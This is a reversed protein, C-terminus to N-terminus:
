GRKNAVYTYFDADRDSGPVFDSFQQIDDFGCTALLNHLENEKFPYMELTGYIIGPKKLSEWDSVSSHNAYYVFIVKSDDVHIPCGRVATGCYMITGKYPFNKVPNDLLSEKLRLIRPFNREDVILMGGPRLMHAFGQVCKIRDEPKLVLCLSNGLVLVADYKPGQYETLTRWDYTTFHLGTHRDQSGAYKLANQRLHEDIENPMVFLGHQQLFVSEVGIGAAADFVNRYQSGSTASIGLINRLFPGEQALRAVPEVFRHWNNALEPEFIDPPYRIPLAEKKLADFFGLSSDYLDYGKLVMRFGTLAKTPTFLLVFRNRWIGIDPTKLSYKETLEKARSSDIYLLSVKQGDRNQDHWNWFDKFQPTNKVYDDYLDQKTTILIRAGSTKTKKLNIEHSELYGRYRNLFESPVHSDTGDYPADAAEFCTRTWFQTEESDMMRGEESLVGILKDRLSELDSLMFTRLVGRAPQKAQREVELLTELLEGLRALIVLSVIIQAIVASVIVLAIALPVQAGLSVNVDFMWFLLRIVATLIATVVIQWLWPLRRLTVIRWWLQLVNRKHHKMQTYSDKGIPQQREMM